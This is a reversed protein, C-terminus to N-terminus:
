TWELLGTIEDYSAQLHPMSVVSNIQKTSSNVNSVVTENIVGSPTYPHTHPVLGDTTEPASTTHWGIYDGSGIYTLLIMSGADYNTTVKSSGNVYITNAGLNNINLTTESDGGATPVKYIVTLGNYYEKIATNTGLWIGATSGSSEVYYFGSTEYATGDPMELWRIQNIAM